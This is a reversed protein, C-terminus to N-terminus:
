PCVARVSQGLDRRDSYWSWYGSDFCLSYAGYGRSNPFLSGSWYLGDGGEYGLSDRCLVSAAPLFIQGGSPGTVLSGNVGNQQTWQRTCCDVLEEIQEVTPMRWLGGMKVHAVDYQTGSIDTGIDIIGTSDNYYAYTELGYYDKESTEGWAYYGLQLVSMAALGSRAARCDSTSSM